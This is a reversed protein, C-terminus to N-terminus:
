FRSSIILQQKSDHMVDCEGTYHVVATQGQKPFTAGSPFLYLVFDIVHASFQSNKNRIKADEDLKGQARKLKMPKGGRSVMEQHFRYLTLEWIQKEIKVKWQAVFFTKEAQNECDVSM